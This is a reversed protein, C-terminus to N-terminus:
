FLDVHFFPLRINSMFFYIIYFLILTEGCKSYLITLQVNWNPKKMIKKIKNTVYVLLSKFWFCVLNIFRHEQIFLMCLNLIFLKPVSFTLYVIFFYLRM